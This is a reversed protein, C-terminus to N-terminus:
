IMIEDIKRYKGNKPMIDRGGFRAGKDGLGVILDWCCDVHLTAPCILGFGGLDILIGPQFWSSEPGLDLFTM